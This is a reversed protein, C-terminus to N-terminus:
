DLALDARGTRDLAARIPGSLAYVAGGELGFRTVMAEGAVCASDVSLTIRKLPTGAFHAIFHASWGIDVGCNSARFPAISVGASALFDTWAGDAGLRP